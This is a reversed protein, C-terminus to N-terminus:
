AVEGQYALKAKKITELKMTKKEERIRLTVVGDEYGEVTGTEWALTDAPMVAVSAGIFCRFESGHKIRRELGPSSVELYVDHRDHALEIRPMVTKHVVTCDDIGIGEPRHIVLHVQLRRNVVKSSCDVLCYGLGEVIPVLDDYLDRDQPYADM